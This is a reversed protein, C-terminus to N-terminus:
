PSTRKPCTKRTDAQSRLLSDLNPSSAGRFHHHPQNLGPLDPQARNPGLITPVAPGPRWAPSRGLGLVRTEISDWTTKTEARGAGAAFANKRRLRAWGCPRKKPNAPGSRGCKKRRLLPGLWAPMKQRQRAWGCLCKEEMAERAPFLAQATPRHLRHLVSFTCM